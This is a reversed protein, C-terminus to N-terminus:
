HSETHASGALHSARDARSRMATAQEGLGANM